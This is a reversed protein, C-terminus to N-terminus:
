LSAHRPLPGANRRFGRQMPGAGVFDGSDSQSISVNQKHFGFSGHPVFSTDFLM